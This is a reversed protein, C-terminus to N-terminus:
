EKALARDITALGEAARGQQFQAYGLELLAAPDEPKLALAQKADAEVAPWNRLKASIRSRLVWVRHDRPELVTLRTADRLAGTFDGMGARRQVSKWLEQVQFPRRDLDLPQEIFGTAGAGAGAGEAERDPGFDLSAKKLKDGSRALEDARGIIGRAIEDGPEKALVRRADALAGASDGSRSRAVARHRLADIDDPEKELIRESTRGAAATDGTSAHAAAIVRLDEATAQAGLDRELKTASLLVDAGVGFANSMAGGLRGSDAQSEPVTQMTPEAGRRALNIATGTRVVAGGMRPLVSELAKPSLVAPPDKELDNLGNGAAADTAPLTELGHKNRLEFITRAPGPGEPPFPKSEKRYDVQCGMWLVDLRQHCRSLDKRDCLTVAQEAKATNCYVGEASTPVALVALLAALSPLAM